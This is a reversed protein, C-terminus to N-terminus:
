KVVRCLNAADTPVMKPLVPMLVSGELIKQHGMIHTVPVFQLSTSM